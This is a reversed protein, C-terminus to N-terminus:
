NGILFSTLNEKQLGLKRRIRVRHREVTREDIYLREAIQWNLLMSKALVCIRLETPTLIPFREALEHLSAAYFGNSRVEIEEWALHRKARSKRLSSRLGTDSTRLQSNSAPFLHFNQM